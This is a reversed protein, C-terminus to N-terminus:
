GFLRRFIQLLPRPIEQRFRETGHARNAGFMAAYSLRGEANLAVAVGWDPATFWGFSVEGDPDAGLEPDPIGSPLALLFARAKEVTARSVPAAGEGDWGQTGCEAHVAVLDLSVRFRSMTLSALRTDRWEGLSKNVAWAEAGIGPSLPEPGSSAVAYASMTTTM